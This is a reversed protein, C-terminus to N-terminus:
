KADSYTVVFDGADKKYIKVEALGKGVLHLSSNVTGVTKKGDVIPRLTWGIGCSAVCMAIVAFTTQRM